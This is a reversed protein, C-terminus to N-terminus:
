PRNLKVDDNRRQGGQFLINTRTPPIWPENPSSRDPDNNDISNLNYDYDLNDQQSYSLPVLFLWLFWRYM